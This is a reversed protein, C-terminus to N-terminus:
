WLIFTHFSLTCKQCSQRFLIAFALKIGEIHSFSLYFLPHKYGRFTSLENPGTSRLKSFKTAIKPCFALIKRSLSRDPCLFIKMLFRVSLIIIHVSLICTRVITDFFRGHSVSFIQKIDSFTQFFCKKRLFYIEESYNQPFKSHLTLLEASFSHWTHFKKWELNTIVSIKKLSLLKEDYLEKPCTSNMKVVTGFLKQWSDPIKQSFTWWDLVFLNQVFFIEEFSDWLCKSQLESMGASSVKKGSASFIATLTVFSEFFNMKKRFFFFKTSRRRQVRQICNQFSRRHFSPTM